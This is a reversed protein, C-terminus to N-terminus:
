ESRVLRVQSAFAGKAAAAARQRAVELYARPGESWRQLEDRRQQRRAMAAADGLPPKVANLRQWEAEIAGLVTRATAALAEDEPATAAPAGNPPERMTEGVLLTARPPTGMTAAALRVQGPDGNVATIPRADGVTRGSRERVVVHGNEILLLDAKGDGTWDMFAMGSSTSVGLPQRAKVFGRASGLHVHVQTIAVLLDLRGDDNWDGLAIASSQGDCVLVTGDDALLAAAAGFNGRGDNAFWAFRGTGGLPTDIAVLDLDGDGDVDQLCPQGASECSPGVACALPVTDTFDNGTRGRGRRLAFGGNSGIVLDLTGDGDIDGIAASVRYDNGVPLLPIRPETQALVLAPVFAVFLIPGIHV